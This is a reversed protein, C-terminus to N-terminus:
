RCSEVLGTLVITTYLSLTSVKFCDGESRFIKLLSRPESRRSAWTSIFAICDQVSRNDELYDHQEDDALALANFLSRVLPKYACDFVMASPM